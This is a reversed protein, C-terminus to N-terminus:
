QPCEHTPIETYWSSYNELNGDPTFRVAKLNLYKEFDEVAEFNLDILSFAVDFEEFKYEKEPDFFDNRVSTQQRTDSYTFCLSFKNIGFALM